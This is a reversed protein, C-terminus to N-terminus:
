AHATEPTGGEALEQGLYATVVEPNRRVDAPPGSAIVHGFDLVVLRDCLTMVFDMHHEVLIVSTTDRLGAVFQRLEDMEEESLGGAPEDLLLLRPEVILARALAVRKRLAYPLEGPLRSAVGAAHVRELVEMARARLRGEDRSAPPLGLLASVLGGRGQSHAGAMVNELVTLGPWLGVGQLTRAIGLRVLDHPRRGALRQGAWTITGAAPRVFGCVANFLTTKGAGNPGIVGVIEREGVTLSVGELAVLGGFAVTLDRVELGPPPTM